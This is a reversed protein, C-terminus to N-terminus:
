RLAHADVRDALEPPTERSTVVAVALPRLKIRHHRAAARLLDFARDPSVGLREALVGKAQEIVIRSDLAEQLQSTRTLLEQAIGRLREVDEPTRVAFDLSWDGVRPDAPPIGDGSAGGPAEVTAAPEM